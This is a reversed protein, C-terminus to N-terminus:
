VVSVGDVVWAPTVVSFSGRVDAPEGALAVVRRLLEYVNGSLMARRVPYAPHGDELVWANTTTVSFDGVAPDIVFAGMVDAVLLARGVGAAAPTSYTAGPATVVLNSPAVGARYGYEGAPEVFTRMRESRERSANGTSVAVTLARLRAATLNNHLLSVLRGAEIVTTARGPTGEADFLRSGTGGPLLADDTVTLIAAAVPRGLCPEGDPGGFPSLGALVRDAGLAPGLSNSLLSLVAEPRIVVTLPGRPAERAGESAAAMEAARRGVQERRLGEVSRSSRAHAALGGKPSAVYAAASVLTDLSSRRLGFSNAVAVRRCTATAIVSLVSGGAELAEAVVERGLGVLDPLNMEVVRPDVLGLTHDAGPPGEGGSAGPTLPLPPEEPVAAARSGEVVLTLGEASLDTTSSFGVLRGGWRAALGLGHQPVTVATRLAVKGRGEPEFAVTDTPADIVFVEAAEAGARRAYELAQEARHLLDEM